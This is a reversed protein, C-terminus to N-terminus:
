MLWLIYLGFLAFLLSVISYFSHFMIGFGAVPVKQTYDTGIQWGALISNLMVVVLTFSAYIKFWMANHMAQWTAYDINDLTLISGIYIGAFVFILVNSFRQFLWERVGNRNFSM